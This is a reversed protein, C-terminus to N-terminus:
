KELEVEIVEVGAEKAIKDMTKCLLKYDHFDRGGCILIRPKMTGCM